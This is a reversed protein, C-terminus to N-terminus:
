WRYGVRHNRLPRQYNQVYSGQGSMWATTLRHRVFVDSDEIGESDKTVVM